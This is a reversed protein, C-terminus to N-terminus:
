GLLYVAYMPISGDFYYYETPKELPANAIALTFAGEVRTTDIKVSVPRATFALTKLTETFQDETLLQIRGKSFTKSHGGSLADYSRESIITYLWRPAKVSQATEIAQDAKVSSSAICLSLLAFYLLQKKM